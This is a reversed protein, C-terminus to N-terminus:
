FSEHSLEKAAGPVRDPLAPEVSIERFFQFEV